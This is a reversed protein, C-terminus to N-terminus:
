HRCYQEPCYISDGSDYSIISEALTRNDSESMLSPPITQRRVALHINYVPWLSAGLMNLSTAGLTRRCSILWSALNRSFSGWPCVLYCLWRTKSRFHPRMQTNERIRTCFNTGDEFSIHGLFMSQALKSKLMHVQGSRWHTALLDFSHRLVCHCERRRKELAFITRYRSLQPSTCMIASM